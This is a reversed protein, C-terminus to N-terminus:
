NEVNPKGLDGNGRVKSVLEKYAIQQELKQIADKLHNVLSRFREGTSTIELLKQKEESDLDLVYTVMFSLDAASEPLSLESEQSASLRASLGAVKRYLDAVEDYLTEIPQRSEDDEFFDVSAKWYPTQQIFRHIRFRSEGEVLINMRGDDLREVQVIRVTVGVRHITGEKEEEAGSRLLVLGFPEDREICTNIMMKYREEFIHLPVVINPFLVLNPLPFISIEM